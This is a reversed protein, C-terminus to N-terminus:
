ATLRPQLRQLGADLDAALPLFEAMGTLEVLRAVGTEPPVVIVLRTRNVRAEQAVGLLARLGTSDCFTVDALDLLVRSRPMRIAADLPGCLAAATELDLEGHARLVVTGDRRESDIDLGVSTSTM